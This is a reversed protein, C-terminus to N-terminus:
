AALVIIMAQAVDLHDEAPALFAFTLQFSLPAAIVQGSGKM